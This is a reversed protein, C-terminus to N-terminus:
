GNTIATGTSGRSSTRYWQWTTRSPGDDDVLEASMLTGEQPQVTSLTVTGREELNQIYVTVPKLTASNGTHIGAEARVTVSYSRRVEYDPSENLTLVGNRALTFDDRDAGALSLTITAREPDTATYRAVQRSTSANEPFDDISDPGTLVPPEDM